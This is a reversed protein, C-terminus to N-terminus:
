ILGWAIQNHIGCGIDLVTQGPLIEAMANPNGCGLSFLVAKEPLGSLESQTYLDKTIPNLSLNFRSTECCASGSDPPDKSELAARGIADYREAISNGLDDMALRLSSPPRHSARHSCDAKEFAIAIRAFELKLLGISIESHRM